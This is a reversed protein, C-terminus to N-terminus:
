WYKAILALCHKRNEEGYLQPFLLLEDADFTRQLEHLEHAVTEGDGSIIRPANEARKELERVSWNKQQITEPSLLTKPQKLYHIRQLWYHLSDELQARIQSNEHALVFTSVILYPQGEPHYHQFQKRYRQIIRQKEITKQGFAGFVFVAGLQAAREASNESTGLICFQPQTEIVPMAKLHQFRHPTSSGNNFYKTLDMLQQDFDTLTQKDENLAQSVNQFSPSKGLAIDVRGPHRAELMKFTEAVKYPSYHPLMIGGAGVHIRSTQELIMTALIEPATSAVSHVEHHEALWYRHFNLNEAYRALDVSHNLADQPTRDEFIPSYDLISLQMYSKREFRTISCNDLLILM